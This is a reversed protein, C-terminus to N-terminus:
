LSAETSKITVQLDTGYTYDYLARWPITLTLGSPSTIKPSEGKLEVRPLLFEISKNGRQFFFRLATRSENIFKDYYWNNKFFVTINGTTNRRNSPMAERYRSGIVFGEPDIGNAVNLTANKCDVITALPNGEQVVASYTVFPEDVSFPAAPSISANSPGYGATTDADENSIEGKALINMTGTVYGEQPFNLSLTDIRGGWYRYFYNIDNFRKEISLGGDPFRNGAKLIHTYDGVSGSTVLTAALAHRMLTGWGEPSLEFPLSGGARINGGASNLVARTASLENSQFDNITAALSEGPTIRLGKWAAVSTQFIGWCTEEAFIADALSGSAQKLECSM